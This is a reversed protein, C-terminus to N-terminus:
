AKESTKVFFIPANYGTSLVLGGLEPVWKFKNISTAMNEFSPRSSGAVAIEEVFLTCTVKDVLTIKFLNFTADTTARAKLAWFCLNDDDWALSVDSGNFRGSTVAPGTWSGSTRKTFTDLEILKPSALSGSEGFVCVNSVPEIALPRYSYGAFSGVDGSAINPTWSNSEPNYLHWAGDCGGVVQETWPSKVYSRDPYIGAAPMDPAYNLTWIKRLRWGRFRTYGM